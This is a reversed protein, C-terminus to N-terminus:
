ERNAFVMLPPRLGNWIFYPEARPGCQQIAARQRESETMNARYDSENACGSPVGRRQKVIEISRVLPISVICFMKTSPTM